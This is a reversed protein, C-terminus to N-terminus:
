IEEDERIQEYGVTSLEIFGVGEKTAEVLVFEDRYSNYIIKRDGLPLGM